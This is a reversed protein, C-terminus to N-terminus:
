KKKKPMVYAALASVAAVKAADVLSAGDVQGGQFAAWVAPVVSVVVSAIAGQALTRLARVLRERSASEIKGDDAFDEAVDWFASVVDVEEAIRPEGEPLEQVVDVAEDSLDELVDGLGGIDVAEDSLDLDVVTETPKSHKGM